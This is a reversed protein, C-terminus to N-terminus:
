FNLSGRVMRCLLSVTRAIPVCNETGFGYSHCVNPPRRSSQNILLRITSPSRSGFPKTGADRSTIAAYQTRHCRISQVTWNARYVRSHAWCLNVNARSARTCKRIQMWLCWRILRTQVIRFHILKSVSIPMLLPQWKEKLKWHILLFSFFESNKVFLFTFSFHQIKTQAPYYNASNVDMKPCIDVTIIDHTKNIKMHNLHQILTFFPSQASVEVQLEFGLLYSVPTPHFLSDFPSTQFVILMDPGSSIIDPLSDGGCVRALEPSEITKGDYISLYDQVSDCHNWARIIFFFWSSFSRIRLFLPMHVLYLALSRSLFIHFKCALFYFRKLSKSFFFLTSVFVPDRSALSEPLLACLNPINGQTAACHM